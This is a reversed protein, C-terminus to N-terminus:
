SATPPEPPLKNVFRAYSTEPSVTLAVPDGVKAAPKGTFDVVNDNVVISSLVTDTGGEHPGDPMLSTDIYINGEVKRVGKNTIQKAM